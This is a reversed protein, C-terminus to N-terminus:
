EQVCDGAAPKVQFHMVEPVQVQLWHQLVQHSSGMQYPVELWADLGEKFSLSPWVVRDVMAGNLDM